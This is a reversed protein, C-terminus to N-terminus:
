LLGLKVGHEKEFIVIQEETAAELFHMKGQKKIQDVLGKLEDSVM